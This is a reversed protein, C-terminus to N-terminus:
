ISHFVQSKWEPGSASGADSRDRTVLARMRRCCSAIVVIGMPRGVGSSSSPSWGCSFCPERSAVFFLLLFAFLGLGQVLMHAPISATYTQSTFYYDIKDYKAITSNNRVEAVLEDFM